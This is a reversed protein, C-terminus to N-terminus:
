ATLAHNNETIGGVSDNRFPSTVGPSLDVNNVMVVGTCSATAVVAVVNTGPTLGQVTNGTIAGRNVASVAIGRGGGTIANGEVVLGAVSDVFIGTGTRGTDSIVKNGRITVDSVGSWSSNGDVSIAAQLDGPWLSNGEVLLRGAAYANIMAQENGHIHRVTDFLRNGSVVVDCAQVKICRRSCDNIINDSIVTLSSLYSSAGAASALVTIGDGEEGHIGSIHNGHILTPATADAEHHVVIARSMGTGDGAVSNGTAYIDKIRNLAVVSGSGAVHIARSENESRLGEIHCGIVRHDDGHLYIGGRHRAAPSSPRITVGMLRARHGYVTLIRSTLGDGGDAVIVGGHGDIVVDDRTVSLGGRVRYTRAPLVGGGAALWASVAATDDTRGDGAAGFAEPAAAELADMRDGLVRVYSEVAALLAQRTQSTGSSILAATQGDAVGGAGVGAMAALGDLRAQADAQWVRIVDLEAARERATAARQRAEALTYESTVSAASTYLQGEVDPYPTSM